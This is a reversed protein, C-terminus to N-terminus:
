LLFSFLTIITYDFTIWAVMIGLGALMILDLLVRNLQGDFVKQEFIYMFSSRQFVDATHSWVGMCFHILLIFPMFTIIKESLAQDAPIRVSYRLIITKKCFFTILLYVTTIPLLIPLLSSYMIAISVNLCIIAQQTPLNFVMSTIMKNAQKQIVPNSKDSNQCAKRVKLNNYCGLICTIFLNIVPSVIAIILFNIYYPGVVAYWDLNYDKFVAVKDFEIFKIFTLYKLSQFGFIDGNMVLPLISANIYNSFLVSVFVFSYQKPKSQPKLIYQCIIWIAVMLIVNSVSSVLSAGVQM